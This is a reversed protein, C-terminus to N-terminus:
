CHSDCLEPLSCEVTNCDPDWQAIHLSLRYPMNAVPAGHVRLLLDSAPLDERHIWVYGRDHTDTAILEGTTANYIDVTVRHSECAAMGGTDCLECGTPALVHSLKVLFRLRTIGLSEVPVRYWDEEGQCLFLEHIVDTFYRDVHSSADPSTFITSATEASDNNEHGDAQCDTAECIPVAICQAHPVDGLAMPLREDGLSTLGNGYGLAGSLNSGWCRVGGADLVACTHGGGTVIRDVTGGVPVDGASAPTEDDGIRDSNGYGLKGGPGLGWCRVAGTDLLACTHNSGTDIRTAVGGVPVDGAASPPGDRGVFDTNGYGLAGLGGIGWCRVAGTDLLACTHDGGTAIQTVVGGVDVDGASAPTEDDGIANTNGYGLRGFLGSGWCRVAGTDLLACTHDGGTAIQTVVGGVDM